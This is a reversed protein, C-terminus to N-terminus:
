QQVHPVYTMGLHFPEIPKTSRHLIWYNRNAPYYDGLEDRIQNIKGNSARWHSEQRRNITWQQETQRTHIAAEAPSANPHESSHTLTLQAFLIDSCVLSATSM